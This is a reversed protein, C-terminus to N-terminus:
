KQADTGDHIALLIWENADDPMFLRMANVLLRRRGISPFTGEVVYDDVKVKESQVEHLLRRFVPTDWGGNGLEFISKTEIEAPNVHFAQYFSRNATKVRFAGDLVVLPERITAVIAEAFRRSAEADALVRKLNDIDQLTMVVGDIRSDSTRYPRIRIQFWCGKPDQVEGSFVNLSDLVEVISGPLNPIEISFKLDTVPRGVDGPIINLISQARPTFRRIRLDRDLIVIAIDVSNFLNLLDDGVEQLEVNRNQLEENLTTLEENTSQLEEKATELEENTSQLEENSSLAEENAARLEESAVDQEEMLLHLSQKAAAMEQRLQTVERQAAVKHGAHGKPAPGGASNSIQEFLVLFFREDSPPVDFPIVRVNIVISRGDMRMPVGDRSVARKLKAAKATLARLEVALGGRAMQLLNLNALGPGHELFVGTRGRFQLIDMRSNVIVGEPAFEGLVIADAKKRVEGLVSSESPGPMADKQFDDRRPGTAFPQLGATDLGPLAARKAYIRHKGDILEFLEAFAGVSEATGLFLFGHPNLAYHFVPIVRRQMPAGFYILVNRCSIIDVKSFPADTAVNQRAFVCLDRVQKGIRYGGETKAFFRRLREPSVETKIAEGYVANRAKNLVTDNVDTGFLQIPCKKDAGDMFEVLMIALSYVEEGTSCGPVWVRISEGESKHRLIRSLIKKRMVEFAKPDRFFGTVSILIDQMLADLEEPNNRLFDCYQPLSEKKQLLMRRSIRRSLTPTKYQSFDIGARSRFQACIQRFGDAEPRVMATGGADIAIPHRGIRVLEAAIEEPVLIFDAAGSAHAPMSPHKASGQAQAFTIGDRAKIAELGVTGDDGTGSLIVGVALAGQDEALATFFHNVPANPPPSKRRPHLKLTRKSIGLTKGPPIVFVTDPQVKMGHAAEKVIMKTVRSLISVLASPHAPDLHQVLVFGMGCDPPVSQLLQSVAELGGASAGIGVIPFAEEKKRTRTAQGM